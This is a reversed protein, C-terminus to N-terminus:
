YKQTQDDFSAHFVCLSLFVCLYDWQGLVFCMSFLCSNM